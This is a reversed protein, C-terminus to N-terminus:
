FYLGTLDKIQKMNKEAITNAKQNHIKVTHKAFEFNNKSYEKYKEQIPKLSEIILESLDNKFDKYGRNKYENQIKKRSKQSFLSYILILNSIGLRSEDSEITGVSDTKARSIKRRIDDPNDLLFICSNTDRESKSMKKSPDTLSLIKASGKSILPEPIHFFDTKYTRNFKLALDRTLELHQKQDAGVPVIDSNYLLVDAAMLVPYNLLGSMPEKFKKSKDKFQTMRKLWSVPTLCNLIWALEFHSPVDSQIFVLSKKLDIGCALVLSFTELTMNKLKDSEYDQTIAHADAIMTIMEYKDQLDAWNKIAGFYNGIHLM